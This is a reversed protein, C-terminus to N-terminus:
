WTFSPAAARTLAASPWNERAKGVWGMSMSAKRARREAADDDRASRGKEVLNGGM